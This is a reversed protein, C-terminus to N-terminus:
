PPSPFSCVFCLQSGQPPGLPSQLQVPSPVPSVPLDRPSLVFRRQVHHAGGLLAFSKCLHNQKRKSQNGPCHRHGSAIARHVPLRGRAGLELRSEWYFRPMLLHQLINEACKRQTLPIPLPSAASAALSADQLESWRARGPVRHRHWLCYWGSGAWATRRDQSWPCVSVASLVRGTARRAGQWAADGSGPSGPCEESGAWSM